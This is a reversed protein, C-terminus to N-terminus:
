FSKTVRAFEALNDGYLCVQLVEVATVALPEGSLAWKTAQFFITSRMDPTDLSGVTRVISLYVSGSVAPEIMGFVYVGSQIATAIEAFTKDCVLAENQDFSFTACLIGGGGGSAEAWETGEGGTSVTLVKGKDASTYEPLGGPPDAKAWIGDVVALVDGNDASTVEPLGGGGGGQGANSYDWSSGNWVIGCITYNNGDISVDDAEVATTVGNNSIWVNVSPPMIPEGQANAHFGYDKLFTLYEESKETAGSSTLQIYIDRYSASGKYENANDVGLGVVYRGDTKKAIGM